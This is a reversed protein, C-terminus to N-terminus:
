SYKKSEYHDFDDIWSFINDSHPGASSKRKDVTGKYMRRDREKEKDPLAMVVDIFEQPPQYGHKSIYHSLMQPFIYTKGKGRVYLVNSSNAGHCFPCNHWGKHRSLTDAGGLKKLFGEPVEGTEYDQGKDLWGINVPNKLGRSGDYVYPTLDDYYKENLFENYNYIM